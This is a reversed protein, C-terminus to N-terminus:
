PREPLRVDMKAGIAMVCDGLWRTEGRAERLQTTLNAVQYEMDSIHQNKKNCDEIHAVFALRRAKIELMKEEFGRKLFYISLGGVAAWIATKTITFTFEDM